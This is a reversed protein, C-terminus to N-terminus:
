RRHRRRICDAIVERASGVSKTDVRTENGFQDRTTIEGVWTKSDFDFVVREIRSGGDLIDATREFVARTTSLSENVQFGEADLVQLDLTAISNRVGWTDHPKGYTSSSANSQNM